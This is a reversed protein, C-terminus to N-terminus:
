YNQLSVRKLRSGPDDILTAVLEKYPTDDIVIQRNQSATCNNNIRIATTTGATLPNYSGNGMMYPGIIRFNTGRQVDIHVPNADQARYTLYCNEVTGSMPWTNGANDGWQVGVVNTEFYCNACHLNGGAYFKLGVGNTSFDCGIVSVAVGGAHYLGVSGATFRSHCHMVNHMQSTHHVCYKGSGPTSFNCDRTSLWWSDGASLCHGGVWFIHVNELITRPSSILTIGNGSCGYGGSGATASVLYLDRLIVYTSNQIKIIDKDIGHQVISARMGILALNNKASILLTDSIKYQGSPFFVAAQNSAPPFAGNIANQIAVTDDTTGDGVAGFDKVSVMGTLDADTTTGAFASSSGAALALAGAGLGAGWTMMDRRNLVKAATNQAM